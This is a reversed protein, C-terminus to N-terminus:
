ATGRWSLVMKLCESNGFATEYAQAADQAACEHSILNELSLSGDALLQSVAALDEPNWEAAVRVRAEKMFAPPFAFNVRDSYFGALIVEGGKALRPMLVDLIDSKGSVDIITEYVGENDDAPDVVSFNDFGTRRVPDTEWITPAKSGLAVCMRAILRGLVGCGVVLDPLNSGPRTVAHYATAALALLVGQKDSCAEITAVRDSAVVLHSATGGFLGRVNEYRASGPVFVTQGKKFTSDGIIDVIKGVTEYGPVLPYGMGPFEPMKGLWLLRETGTSIGSFKSEVILDGAQPASFVVQDLALKGPKEFIVAKADM